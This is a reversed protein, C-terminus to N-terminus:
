SVRAPEPARDSQLQDVDVTLAGLRRGTMRRLDSTVRERVDAVAARVPGPYALALTLRVDVEDATRPTVKASPGSEGVGVGAVTRTRRRTAPATDAAYEVIKRLVSPDVDLRGRDEPDPLSSM